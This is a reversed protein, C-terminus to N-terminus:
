PSVAKFISVANETKPNSHNQYRFKDHTSFLPLLASDHRRYPINFAVSAM